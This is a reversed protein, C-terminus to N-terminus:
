GVLGLAPPRRVVARSEVFLRSKVTEKKAEPMRAMRIASLMNGKADCFSLTACGVERYGIPGIPVRGEAAAAQRKDKANGDKMPALVGDISVAISATGPPIETAERLTTEFSKRDDEWRESLAKPLQDLSTKSPSMNGLRQFLEEAQRPVMQAVVWAAQKSALPTWFGEVVGTRLEMPCLSRADPDSRDKYLSREVTVPGAATLYTETGRLVRRCTVGGVVLAEADIDAKALVDGVVSRELERLRKHLEEEFSAFDEPLPACKLDRIYKV